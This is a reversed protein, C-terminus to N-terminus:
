ERITSCLSIDDFHKYIVVSLRLCKMEEFKNIPACRSIFSLTCHIVDDGSMKTVFTVTWASFRYLRWFSIKGSEVNDVKRVHENLIQYPIVSEMRSIYLQKQVRSDPGCCLNEVSKRTSFNKRRGVGNCTTRQCAGSLRECQNCFLLIM